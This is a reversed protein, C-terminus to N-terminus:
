LLTSCGVFVGWPFRSERCVLDMRIALFGDGDFTGNPHTYESYLLMPFLLFFDFAM